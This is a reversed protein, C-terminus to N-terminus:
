KSHCTTCIVSAINPTRLFSVMTATGNNTHPEHCTACQVTPVTNTANVYLPLDTKQRIGDVTGIDLWWKDTGAGAAFTTVAVGSNKILSTLKFDKDVCGLPVVGPAAAVGGCYQVGVPHDNSLDVGLSGFLSSMNVAGMTPVTSLGPGPSNILLNLATAGDHCSLCMTSQLGITTSTANPSDMSGSTTKDYYTYTALTGATPPSRNWLPAASNAGHPTHCFVCVETTSTSKISANNPSTSGSSLDHKSNVVQAVAAQGALLAAFLLSGTALLKMPRHFM